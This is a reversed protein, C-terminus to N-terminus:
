GRAHSDLADFVRPRNREVDLYSGGPDVLPEPDALIRDIESTLEKGEYFLTKVTLPIGLVNCTHTVYGYSNTLVQDRPLHIVLGSWHLDGILRRQPKDEFYAQVPVGSGVRGLFWELKQFSCNRYKKAVAEWTYRYDPPPTHLAKLLTAQSTVPKLKGLLVPGFTFSAFGFVIILVSIINLSATVKAM